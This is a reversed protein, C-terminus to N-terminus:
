PKKELKNAAALALEGLTPEPKKKGKETAEEGWWGRAKVPDKALKRLEAADKAGGVRAIVHIGLAQAAHVLRRYYGVGTMTM